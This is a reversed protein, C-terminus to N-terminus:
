TRTKEILETVDIVPVFEKIKAHITESNNPQRFEYWEHITNKYKDIPGGNSTFGCSHLFNHAEEKTNFSGCNRKWTVERQKTQENHGFTRLNITFM